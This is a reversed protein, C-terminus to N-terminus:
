NPKGQPSLATDVRRFRRAVKNWLLQMRHWETASRSLVAFEIAPFILSIAIALAIRQVPPLDLGWYGVLVALGAFCFLTVITQWDYRIPFRQQSFYFIVLSLALFSNISALAAGAAGLWPVLVFISIVATTLGAFTVLPFPKTNDSLEMGTGMMFYVGQSVPILGIIPILSACSFYSPDTMLWVLEPGWVSVGVWLYLIGAVYYTVATRFFEAPNADEAHIQFKYPVWANQVSNVIFMIPATFKTAIDYLGVEDIGLLPGIAYTPLLSMTLGQLQHPVIPLGYSALRKWTEWNAVLRFSQSTVALQVALLVVEGVLMGVIVGWVGWELGVVLGITVLVTLLMKAVNIAAATKVRRDAKLIAFPVMGIAGAAMTVLNLRVLNAATADGVALRSLGDAFLCAMALLVLSSCVVSMLGTSLVQQRAKPEKDLNFRRFIANIMGLNALPTFFATVILVQRVEGQQEPALYHTYLPLLLFGILQNLFSSIGYVAADSLLGLLKRFM